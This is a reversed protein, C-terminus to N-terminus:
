RRCVGHSDRITRDRITWTNEGVARDSNRDHEPKSRSQIRRRRQYGYRHPHLEEAAAYLIRRFWMRM